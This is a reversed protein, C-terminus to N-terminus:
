AAYQQMNTVANFNYYWTFLRLTLKVAPTHDTPLIFECWHKNHHDDNVYTCMGRIERWPDLGFPKTRTKVPNPNIWVSFEGTASYDVEWFLWGKAEFVDAMEGAERAEVEFINKNYGNDETQTRYSVGWQRGLNEAQIMHAFEHAWSDLEDTGGPRIRIGTKIGLRQHSGMITPKEFEDTYFCILTEDTVEPMKYGMRVAWATLAPLLYNYMGVGSNLKVQM